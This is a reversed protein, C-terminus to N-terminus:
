ESIPYQAFLAINWGGDEPWAEGAERHRVAMYGYIKSADIGTFYNKWIADCNPNKDKSSSGYNSPGQLSGQQISSIATYMTQTEPFLATAAITYITKVVTDGWKYVTKQWLYPAETTPFVLTANYTAEAADKPNDYNNTSYEVVVGLSNEVTTSGSVQGALIQYKSLLASIDEYVTYGPVIIGSSVNKADTVPYIPNSNNDYLTTGNM